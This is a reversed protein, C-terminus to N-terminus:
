AEDKQSIYRGAVGYNEPKIEDILVRIHHPDPDIERMLVDTIGKIVRAKVEKSRGELITVKVIAM